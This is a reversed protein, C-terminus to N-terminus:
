TPCFATVGFGSLRAAIRAIVAAGDLADHGDVGHVHVDIFGPVIFHGHLDGADALDSPALDVIRGDEISLRGPALLRDPLVVTAGTLHIMCRGCGAEGCRDCRRAIRPDLARAPLPDPDGAPSTALM